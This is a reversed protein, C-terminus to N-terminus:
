NQLIKELGKFLDDRTWNNELLYDPNMDLLEVSSHAGTAAAMVFLNSNKASLIDRPSDGIVIGVQDEALSTNANGIVLNRNWDKETSCFLNNKDFYQLLDVHKLKILAGNQCNGTGIALEINPSEHLFILTKKIEGIVQTKSERLSRPLLLSYENLIQTIENFSIEINLSKLLYQAIEYDTFGSLKKREIQVDQGAFKSVANAFPVAAAGHTQLLTGDIDWFIKIKKYIKASQMRFAYRKQCM